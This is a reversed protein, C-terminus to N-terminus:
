TAPNTVAQHRTSTGAFAAGQVHHAIAHTM